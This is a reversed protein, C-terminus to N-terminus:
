LIAELHSSLLTISNKEEKNSNQSKRVSSLLTIKRIEGKEKLLSSYQDLGIKGYSRSSWFVGCISYVKRIYFKYSSPNM